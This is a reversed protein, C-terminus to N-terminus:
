NCFFVDQSTVRPLPPAATVIPEDVTWIELIKTGETAIHPGQHNKKRNCDFYPNVPSVVNCGYEDNAAFILNSLRGLVSLQNEVGIGMYSYKNYKTALEPDIDVLLMEKYKHYKGSMTIEGLM